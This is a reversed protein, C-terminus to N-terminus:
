KDVPQGCHLLRREVWSGADFGVPDDEAREGRGGFVVFGDGELVLGPAGSEGVTHGGGYEAHALLDAADGGRCEVRVAPHEAEHEPEGADAVPTEDV